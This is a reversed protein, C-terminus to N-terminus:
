SWELLELAKNKTEEDNRIIDINEEVIDMNDRTEQIMEASLQLASVMTNALSQTAEETNEMEVWTGAQYYFAKATTLSVIQAEVGYKENELKTKKIGSSIDAGVAVFLRGVGVFNIRLVFEKAFLAPNGASKAAGMGAAITLNTAMFVGSSITMMRVITRNKFPIVKKADLYELDKFSKINKEKIEMFLRRVFYFGRVIMENLLVPGAQKKLESAMGIETRFDIKRLMMKGNEDLKIKGNSDREAFLTGNYMKSLIKSFDNEGNSNRFIPLASLEKAMSMLPGPIGMGAGPSSTSGALDSILHYYWVTTGIIIKEGINDGIIRIEKGAKAIRGEKGAVFKLDLVVFKGTVDTGYCKQTFQTLLSCAFGIISPHHAFDRLHHQRSGGFEATLSDSPLNFRDELFRIIGELSDTKAKSSNVNTNGAKKAKEAAKGLKDSDSLNKIKENVSDNGIKNFYDLLDKGQADGGFVNKIRKEKFLADIIATILGSAVAVLYDIKDAHNTYFDIQDELELRKTNLKELDADLDQIRNLLEINQVNNSKFVDLSDIEIQFDDDSETSVLQLTKISEM